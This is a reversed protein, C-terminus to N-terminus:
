KHETKNKINNRMNSIPFASESKLATHLFMTKSKNKLKDM